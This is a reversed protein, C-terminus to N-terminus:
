NKLIDELTVPPSGQNENLNLSKTINVFFKNMMSAVQKKNSFLEVMLLMKNSHLGKNSFYPKVTIWFKKSGSLDEVNLNQFYDKKTRQLLTACFNRQKKYDAWNVETM